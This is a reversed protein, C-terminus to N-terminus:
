KEHRGLIIIAERIAKPSIEPVDERYLGKLRMGIHINKLIYKQAEEILELIDGEFDHRNIITVSTTDSFVACRLQLEPHRAFFTAFCQGGTKKLIGLKELANHKTDWVLGAKEIFRKVRGENIEDISM